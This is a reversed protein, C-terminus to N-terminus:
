KWDKQHLLLTQLIILHKLTTVGDHVQDEYTKLPYAFYVRTVQTDITSDYGGSKDTSTALAIDLVM